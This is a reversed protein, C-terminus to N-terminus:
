HIMGWFGISNFLMMKNIYNYCGPLLSSVNTLHTSCARFKVTIKNLSGRSQRGPTGGCYREGAGWLVWVGCVM